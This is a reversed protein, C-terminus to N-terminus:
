SISIIQNISWGAVGEPVTVKNRNILLLRSRRDIHLYRLVM